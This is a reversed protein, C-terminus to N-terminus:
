GAAFGCESAAVVISAIVSSRISDVRIEQRPLAANPTNATCVARSKKGGIGGIMLPDM